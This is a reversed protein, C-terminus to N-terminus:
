LGGDGEEVEVSVWLESWMSHDGGEGRREVGFAESVELLPESESERVGVGVGV